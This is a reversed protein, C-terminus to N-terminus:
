VMEKKLEVNADKCTNCQTLRQVITEDAILVISKRRENVRHDCELTTRLYWNQPHLTRFAKAFDTMESKSSFYKTPRM